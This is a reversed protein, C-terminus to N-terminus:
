LPDENQTNDLTESGTARTIDLVTNLIMEKTIKAQPPM